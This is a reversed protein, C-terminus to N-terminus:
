NLKMDRIMVIDFSGIVLQKQCLASPKQLFMDEYKRHNMISHLNQFIFLGVADSTRWWAKCNRNTEVDVQDAQDVCM